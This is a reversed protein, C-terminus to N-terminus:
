ILLCAIAIMIITGIDVSGLSFAVNSESTVSIIKYIGTSQFFGVIGDLLLSLM